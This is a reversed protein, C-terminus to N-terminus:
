KVIVTGVQAAGVHNHYDWTGAKNFTFSYSAGTSCQDFVTTSPAGGVCHESRSTGDYATHSPHEDVGVWMSGSQAVFKVTDGNNVTVTKPSFGTQSSYTVTVTKAAGAGVSAGVGATVGAGSTSASSTATTTSTNTSPTPTTDIVNINTNPTPAPTNTQTFWWAGGAIILIAALIVVVTSTKM